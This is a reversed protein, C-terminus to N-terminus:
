LPKFTKENRFTNLNRNYENIFGIFEYDFGYEGMLWAYNVTQYHTALPSANVFSTFEDVSLERLTM